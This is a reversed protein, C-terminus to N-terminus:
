PGHTKCAMLNWHFLYWTFRTTVKMTQKGIGRYNWSIVNRSGIFNLPMKM